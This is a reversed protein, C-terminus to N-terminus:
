SGRLKSRIRPQESSRISQLLTQRSTLECMCIESCLQSSALRAAYPALTVCIVGSTPPTGLYSEGKRVWMPFLSQCEHLSSWITLARWDFGFSRVM